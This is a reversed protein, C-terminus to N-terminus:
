KIRRLRQEICDICLEEGEYDYIANKEENCEDCIIHPTKKAGCRYCVECGVCDNEYVTM